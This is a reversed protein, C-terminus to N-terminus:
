RVSGIPSMGVKAVEAPRLGETFDPPGDPPELRPQRQRALPCLFRIEFPQTSPEPASVWHCGSPAAGAWGIIM